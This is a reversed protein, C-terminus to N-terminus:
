YTSCTRPLSSTAPEFGAILEVPLGCSITTKEKNQRRKVCGLFFVFDIAFVTAFM